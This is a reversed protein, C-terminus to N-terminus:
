FFPSYILSNEQFLIQCDNYISAAMNFYWHWRTFQSILKSFNKQQITIYMLMNYCPSMTHTSHVMYVQTYTLGASLDLDIKSGTIREGPIHEGYLDLDLIPKFDKLIRIMTTLGSFASGTMEFEHHWCTCRLYIM